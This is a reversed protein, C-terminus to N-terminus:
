KSLKNVEKVAQKKSLIALSIIISSICVGGIAGGKGILTGGIAGGFIGGFTYMLIGILKNMKNLKIIDNKFIYDSYLHQSSDIYNRVREEIPREM